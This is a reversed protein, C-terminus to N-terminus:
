GSQETLSGRRTSVSRQLSPICLQRQVKYGDICLGKVTGDRGCLPIRLSCHATLMVHRSSRVTVHEKPNNAM